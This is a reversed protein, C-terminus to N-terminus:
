DTVRRYARKFERAPVDGSSEIKTRIVLLDGEDELTVTEMVKGGRPGARQVVLKEGNWQGSLVLARPAHALTDKAAGLTTIEQLVTGNSDEFSVLTATMTVHMRDPLRVPRAAGGPGGPGGGRPGRDADGGFGGPRRGGGGVGGPGGMRGPGGMGDRPGRGMPGGEPRQMSDSRKPELEWAGTLDLARQTDDAVAVSAILVLGTVMRRIM